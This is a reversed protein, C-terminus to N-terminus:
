AGAARRYHRALTGVDAVGDLWNREFQTRSILPEGEWFDLLERSAYAAARAQRGAGAFLAWSPVGVGLGRTSLLRGNTAREAREYHGELYLAYAEGVVANLRGALAYIASNPM